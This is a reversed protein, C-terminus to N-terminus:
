KPRYIESKDMEDIIPDIVDTRGVRGTVQRPDRPASNQRIILTGKGKNEHILATLNLDNLFTKFQEVDWKISAIDDVVALSESELLAQCAFLLMNAAHKGEGTGVTTQEKANSLRSTVYSIQIPTVDRKTSQKMILGVMQVFDEINSSDKKAEQIAESLKTKLVELNSAKNENFFRGM